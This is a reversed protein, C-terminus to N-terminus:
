QLQAIIIILRYFIEQNFLCCERVQFLASSRHYVLKMYFQTEQKNISNLMLVIETNLYSGTLAMPKLIVWHGDKFESVVYRIEHQGLFPMSVTGRYEKGITLNKRPDVDRLRTVWSFYQV